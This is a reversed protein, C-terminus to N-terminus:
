VFLAAEAVLGPGFGLAICPRPANARRLNEIVFLVTPSSMNGHRALVERSAALAAANLGLGDEVAQLIRPGGPHVAWSCIAGVDLGGADLWGALWPRIAGRILEPVRRSIQMTFGHDGIRWTMDAESDPLLVSGSAQMRWAGAPAAAAPLAVLAAAGDAFLANGVWNDREGGYQYHLSCTEVAVLLIRARPSTSAFAAAARLGNLAGHCGMFGIHVREVTSRLGLAKILGVDVGPAAFGTCSVTVLHTMAGSENGADALAARAAALALPLATEEYRRMRESTPPDRGGDLWERYTAPPLVAGRSQVGSQRYLVTIIAAPTGAREAVSRALVAAEEQSASHPPLATGLGAIALDM